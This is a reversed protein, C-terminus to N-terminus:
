DAAAEPVLSPSQGFSPSKQAIVSEPYKLLAMARLQQVVAAHTDVVVGASFGTTPSGLRVRFGGGYSCCVDFVIGSDYLDNFIRKDIVTNVRPSLRADNM